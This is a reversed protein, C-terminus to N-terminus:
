RDSNGAQSDGSVRLFRHRAAQLVREAVVHNPGFPRGVRLARELNVRTGASWGGMTTRQLTTVVAAAIFWAAGCERVTLCAGNVAISEGV